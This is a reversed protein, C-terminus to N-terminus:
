EIWHPQQPPPPKPSRTASGSTSTSPQPPLPPIRRPEDALPTRLFQPKTTGPQGPDLTRHTLRVPTETKQEHSEPADDRTAAATAPEPTPLSPIEAPKAPEHEPPQQNPQFLEPPFLEPSQELAELMLVTTIHENRAARNAAPTGTGLKERAAQLRLLSKLTANMGRLMSAAQARCQAIKEPSTSPDLALRVCDKALESALVIDGALDAEATNDPSVAAIRAIASQVRQLRNEPTDILPRPLTRALTKIIDHYAISPVDIPKALM